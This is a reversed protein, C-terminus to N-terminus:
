MSEYLEYENSGGTRISRIKTQMHKLVPAALLGSPIFIPAPSFDNGETLWHDPITNIRGQVTDHLPGFTNKRTLIVEVDVNGHCDSIDAEFPDWGLVQGNVKACAGGFGPLRLRSTGEPLPVHYTIKGSYFPFGQPCLDGINVQKNRSALQRVTGSLQVSFDGLLYVAELNSNEKYLTKLIIENKGCLPFEDPIRIKHFAIDIWPECTSTDLRHGNITVAFKEPEEHVFYLPAPLAVIGHHKFIM